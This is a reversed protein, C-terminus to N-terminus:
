NQASLQRAIPNASYLFFRSKLTVASGLPPFGNGFSIL